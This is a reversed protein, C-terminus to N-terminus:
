SEPAEHCGYIHTSHLHRNRRIQANNTVNGKSREREGHSVVKNPDIITFVTEKGGLGRHYVYFRRDTFVIM